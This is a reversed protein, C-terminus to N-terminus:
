AVGIICAVIRKDPPPLLPFSGFAAVVGPGLDGERALLDKRIDKLLLPRKRKQALREYWVPRILDLWRAAVEDWDPQREPEIHVLMNHITAYHEADVVRGRKQAIEVYGALVLEMEELARQKKRSLLSRECLSLRGLFKQLLQEGRPDMPLNDTEASLRARLERVVDALETVPAGMSSPLLVWRPAGYAKPGLCFFAWPARSGVLSVRSLVRAAVARYQEYEIEDVLATVGSVLARVPEFADSIGDWALTGHQAEYEAILELTTLRRGDGSRMSEPLPMNSGLLSSVTEYREIFREDAALAFEKADDPWWAEIEQHVSDMRDVRGVRQEAIRVVSPMDLHVLCSAQQLNVGEALSDSCLGIVRRATSGHQFTELVDRKRSQSEGTAILTKIKPQGSALLQDIIALSIPRSDFALLLAHRELLQRLHAAKARERRDSMQGVRDLIQRYLARDSACAAAHADPDSLWDPLAISLRNEPPKGAIRELRGLVDGTENQKISRPLGFQELAQRTGILHETLAARSSRLSAMVIYRAIRNAGRLRGNLFQAETMGQRRLAEHMELPKTFHAVAKLQDCLTRIEDALRCDEASEDLPYIAPRHRPFRCPRGDRDRYKDPERAILANLLPKTRRVTFRNIETRLRDIEPETLSRNINRVGLLKRFLRLTSPELNDAGLMDVIRLLDIVSRNIPTATFLLVHDAMNRLLQQTRNSGLNLFNHGEDVCLVQARRLADVTLAHHGSGAHSLAGHSYVDLPTAGLNSEWRWTDAVAPPCVMLTKGRRMRGSRLVQDLIAGILHVGMRTKGSGTADAILASGQRSLVYLAQAIGQRQSPWLEADGPLYRDRLYRQAWEGELLEACARALAESWPVVRLLQELLAILQANYDSGLLWYNEAVQRLEQYRAKDRALTFRANAELNTELGPRTYNSSGLTAAAPTLYIKAHLRTGGGALYRAQVQGSKLRDICTILQASLLLSIGRELWYAAVEDAFASDRVQFSEQRSPFPESGLLLRIRGTVSLRALLAILQDLGAYGTVLLAETCDHLDHDLVHRVLLGDLNLPFRQPDPWTLAPGRALPSVERGFLDLTYADDQAPRTV